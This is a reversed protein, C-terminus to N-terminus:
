SNEHQKREDAFDEASFRLDLVWSASLFFLSDSPLMAPFHKAFSKPDCRFMYIVRSMWVGEATQYSQVGFVYGDM